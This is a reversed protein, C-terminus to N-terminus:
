LLIAWLIYFKDFYLIFVCCVIFYQSVSVYHTYSLFTTNIYKLILRLVVLDCFIM